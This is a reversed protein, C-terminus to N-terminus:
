CDRVVGRILVVRRSANARATSTNVAPKVKPASQKVFHDAGM